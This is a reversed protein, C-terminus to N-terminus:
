IRRTKKVEAALVRGPRHKYIGRALGKWGSMGQQRSKLELGMTNRWGCGGHSEKVTGVRVNEIAGAVM